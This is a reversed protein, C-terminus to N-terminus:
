RCAGISESLASSIDGIHGEAVEPSIPLSLLQRVLRETVPLAVERRAFLPHEHVGVPYHIGTDVGHTNLLRARVSDRQEVAIAYQHYVAGDHAPPLGVPMEGLHHQYEAALKRRRLIQQDIKPLLVRLIAAQIEDLRGNSGLEIAQGAQDFGYHRLRRLREAIAADNTAVAGGDGACGLIKTPYFSFAAADGFSGTRRGAIEAGHSQACDEVLALGHRQAIAVIADMPAPIGHLHVPLIAATAPGIAAELAAPDMCRTKADVDVFVPRAGIEAIAIATAAFTMSVTIVEDGPEIGAARLAFGLAQTGSAVGVVHRVGLYSAFEAEFAAVEEGLIFRGRDFVRAIAADIEARHRAFLLGPSERPIRLSHDRSGM